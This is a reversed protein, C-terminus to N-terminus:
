CGSYGAQAISREQGIENMVMAQRQSAAKRDFFAEFLEGQIVIVPFGIVVNEPMVGAPRAQRDYKAMSSIAADTVSQMASYVLDNKETFAQRGGFGPREPTCFLGMKHLDEDGALLWLLTSGLLNGITQAICAGSAMQGHSSTLVVWPKDKSWKCEIIQEVRILHDRLNHDRTAIVDIERPNATETGSVYSGQFVRFGHRQCVNAVQFETPYGQKDLWAKLKQLLAESTAM